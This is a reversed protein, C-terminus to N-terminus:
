FRLTAAAAFSKKGTPIIGWSFNRADPNNDWQSSLIADAGSWIHVAVISGAGYVWQGKTNGNTALFITLGITCAELINMAVAKAVQDTNWQYLSPLLFSLYALGQSGAQNKYTRDIESDEMGNARQELWESESVGLDKWPDKLYVSPRVGIELLHMLKEKSIGAEKVNQFETQTLGAHEYDFDAWEDDEFQAFSMSFCLAIVPFLFKKM